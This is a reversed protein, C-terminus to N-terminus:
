NSPIVMYGQPNLIELKQDARSIRLRLLFWGGGAGGWEVWGVGGMRRCVEKFSYKLWFYLYHCSVKLIHDKPNKAQSSINGAQSSINGAQSSLNGAQSSMNGAQSSMNGAQHSMNRAQSLFNMAQCSMNGAQHSM